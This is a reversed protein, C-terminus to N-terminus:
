PRYPAPSFMVPRVRRRAMVLGVTVLLSLTTLAAGALMDRMIRGVYDPDIRLREAGDCKVWFFGTRPSTFLGLTGVVQTRQATTMAPFRRTFSPAQDKGETFSCSTPATVPGGAVKIRYQDGKDLRVYNDNNATVDTLVNVAHEGFWTVAALGYGFLSIVFILAPLAYWV